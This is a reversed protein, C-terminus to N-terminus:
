GFKKKVWIKRKEKKEPVNKKRGNKEEMKEIKKGCKVVNSLHYTHQMNYCTCHVTKLLCCTPVMFFEYHGINHAHALKLHKYSSNSLKYLAVLHCWLINVIASIIRM